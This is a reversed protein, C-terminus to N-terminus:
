SVIVNLLGMITMVAWIIMLKNWFWTFAGIAFDTEIESVPIKSNIWVVKSYKKFITFEEFRSIKM